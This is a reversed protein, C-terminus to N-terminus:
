VGKDWTRAIRRALERKIEADVSNVQESHRSKKFQLGHAACLEGMFDEYYAPLLERELNNLYCTAADNHNIESGLLVNLLALFTGQQYNIMRQKQYYLKFGAYFDTALVIILISFWFWAM